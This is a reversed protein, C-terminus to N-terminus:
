NSGDWGGLVVGPQTELAPLGVIEGLWPLASRHWIQRRPRLDARQRATGLRLSFVGPADIADCGYISTGCEGCFALARRRGSAA